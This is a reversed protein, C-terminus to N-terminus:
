AMGGFPQALRLVERACGWSVTVGAGGHGYNHIIPAGAEAECRIASRGPRLGALARNIRPPPGDAQIRRCRSLIEATDAAVPSTNYDGDYDTGGMIMDNSRVILYALHGKDMSDVASRASKPKEVSLIQGRIPYVGEDRFLERSGLGSCNVVLSCEDLLAGATSVQQLKIQGGGAELRRQLYPLYVPSEALPVQAIYGMQYGEPLEAPAAARVAGKPLGEKWSHDLGPRTLILFDTMSVGTGPEGALAQLAHYTETSWANAKELPEVAYPFWIAAAVASNTQGPLAAARIEVHWGAEQLVIATTLGSVGAGIVIARNM